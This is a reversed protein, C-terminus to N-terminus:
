ALAERIKYSFLKQPNRGEQRAEAAIRMVTERGLKYFAKMYWKHFSPNMLDNLESYLFDNEYWNTDTPKIRNIDTPLVKNIKNM